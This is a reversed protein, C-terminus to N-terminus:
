GIYKQEDNKRVIDFVSGKTREIIDGHMDIRMRLMFLSPMLATLNWVQKGDSIQLIAIIKTIKMREKEAEKNIIKEADEIDFSIKESIKEMAAQKLPEEEKLMVTEKGDKDKQFIFAAIKDKKAWFDIQRQETQGENIVFFGACLYADPNEKQFKKYEGSKKLESITEKFGM